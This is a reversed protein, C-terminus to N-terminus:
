HADFQEYVHSWKHLLDFYTKALKVNLQRSILERCTFDLVNHQFFAFDLKKKM